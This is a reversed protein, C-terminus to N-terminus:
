KSTKAKFHVVATYYPQSTKPHISVHHGVHHVELMIADNTEIQSSIKEELKKLSEAEFFEVKDHIPQLNLNM